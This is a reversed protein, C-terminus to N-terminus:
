SWKNTFCMTKSNLITLGRICIRRIRTLGVHIKLIKFVYGISSNWEWQMENENNPDTFKRLFLFTQIFIMKNHPVSQLRMRVFQSQLHFRM